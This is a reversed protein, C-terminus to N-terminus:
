YSDAAPHCFPPLAGGQAGVVAIEDAAQFLAQQQDLGEFYRLRFQIRETTPTLSGTGQLTRM